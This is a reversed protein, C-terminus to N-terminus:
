GLDRDSTWTVKFILNLSLTKLCLRSYWLHQIEFTSEFKGYCEQCHCKVHMSTFAWFLNICINNLGLKYELQSERPM